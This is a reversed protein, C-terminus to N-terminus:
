KPQLWSKCLHYFVDSLYVMGRIKDGELVPLRRVRNKVMKDIVVMLHDEPSVTLVPSSMIQEIHLNRFQELYPDLEGEWVPVSDLAYNMFPPRLHYLIDTMSIMGVLRGIGDIVMIGFPKYGTERVRGEFILRAAERVSTEPHVTAYEQVMIDKAKLDMGEGGESRDRSDRFPRSRNM